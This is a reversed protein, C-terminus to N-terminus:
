HAPPKYGKDLHYKCVSCKCEAAYISTVNIAKRVGYKAIFLTCDLICGVVPIVVFRNDYLYKATVLAKVSTSISDM